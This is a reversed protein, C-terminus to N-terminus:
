RRRFVVSARGQLFPHSHVDIQSLGDAACRKMLRQSFSSRAEVWGRNQQAVEGANPVVFERGLLKVTNGYRNVGALIVGLREPVAPGGRFLYDHIEEYMGCPLVIEYRRDDPRNGCNRRKHYKSYM